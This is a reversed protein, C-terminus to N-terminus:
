MLVFKHYNKEGATFVTPCKIVIEISRIISSHPLSTVIISHQADAESKEKEQFEINNVSKFDLSGKRPKPVKPLSDGFREIAPEKSIKIEICM